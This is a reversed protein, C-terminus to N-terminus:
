HGARGLAFKAWRKLSEEQWFRVLAAQGATLAPAIYALALKGAALREGGPLTVDEAVGYGLRNVVLVPHGLQPGYRHYEDSLEAPAYERSGPEAFMVAVTSMRSWGKQAVEVKSRGWTGSSTEDGLGPEPRVDPVM